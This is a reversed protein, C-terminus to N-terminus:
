YFFTFVSLTVFVVLLTLRALTLTEAYITPFIFTSYFCHHLHLVHLFGHFQPLTRCVTRGKSWIFQQLMIHLHINLSSVLFM